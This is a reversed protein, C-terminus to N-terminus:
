RRTRQLASGQGVPPRATELVIRGAAGARLSAPSESTVARANRLADFGGPADGTRLKIAGYDDSAKPNWDFLTTPLVPYTAKGASYPAFLRWSWSYSVDSVTRFNDYSVMAFQPAKGGADEEWTIAHGAVDLAGRSTFPHLAHDNLDLTYDGAPGWEYVEDQYVDSDPFDFSHVLADPGEPDPLSITTQTENVVGSTTFLPGRATYFTYDFDVENGTVPTLKITRDVPTNWDTFTVTTENAVAVNPKYAWSRIFGDSDFGVALMDAMGGCGFLDVTNEVAALALKAKAGARAKRAKQLAGVGRGLDGSGCTTHLFYEYGLGENPVSATITTAVSPPLGPVDVYLHDGPKVGAFTTLQTFANISERLPSPPEIVTVFSGAAVVATANGSADTMQANTTASDASQFYVVQNASPAGALTVTVIVAAPAADIAADINPPADALKGNDGDDGCATLALGTCALLSTWRTM